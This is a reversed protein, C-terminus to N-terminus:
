LSSIKIPSTPTEFQFSFNNSISRTHPNIPTSPLSVENYGHIDEPSEETAKIFLDQSRSQTIQSSINNELSSEFVYVQNRKKTVLIIPSSVKEEQQRSNGVQERSRIVELTKTVKTGAISAEGKPLSPDSESSSGGLIFIVRQKLIIPFKKSSKTGM